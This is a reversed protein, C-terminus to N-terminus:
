QSFEGRAGVLGFVRFGVLSKYEMVFIASGESLSATLVALTGTSSTM